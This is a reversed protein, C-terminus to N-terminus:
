RVHSTAPVAAIPYAPPKELIRGYGRISDNVRLRQLMAWLTATNTSVVPKKIESELDDIIRASPMQACSILVGDANQYDLERVLEAAVSDKLNGVETNSEIGLGRYDSVEFGSKSVFDVEAKTLEKTYPTAIAVSRMGLAKMAALVATASIITPIGVKREIRRRVVADYGAERSMIAITCGYGIASVKADSLEVAAELSDMDMRKLEEATVNRMRMRASHVTYGDPVMENFETEMTTNSSPVIIGLRRPPLKERAALHLTLGNIAQVM